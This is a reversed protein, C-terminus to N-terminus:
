GRREAVWAAFREESEAVVTLVMRTHELGCFEACRSRHVGPQDAELVLTNTRAPLLDLKGALEPVWFSHIVDASTLQLNVRRGVPLHLEDRATVGQEPYRVEWWFQHGVVEIVLAEPPATSPVFRMARVTAGFVILLIVLPVVVGGVVFWRGFSDGQQRDPQGEDAPRRRFLGLGLVVVVAVFVAGGLGLMLWFLDAMAGSVPGQPDLAGGEPQAAVM